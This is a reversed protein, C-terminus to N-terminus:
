VETSPRAGREPWFCVMVPAFSLVFVLCAVAVFTRSIAISCVDFCIILLVIYYCAPLLTLRLVGGSARALDESLGAAVARLVAVYQAARRTRTGGGREREFQLDAVAPAVIYRVTRDSLFRGAFALVQDDFTM